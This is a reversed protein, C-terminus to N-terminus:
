NGANRREELQKRREARRRRIEEAVKQMRERVQEDTEAAIQAPPQAPRPASSSAAPSSPAASLKLEAIEVKKLGLQKTVGNRAIVITESGEDYRQLSLGQEGAQGVILWYNKQEKADWVSVRTTEGLTMIGNFEFSDLDTPAQEQLVPQTPAKPLGFPNVVEDAWGASWLLCLATAVIAKCTPFTNM